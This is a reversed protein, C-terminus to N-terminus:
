LSFLQVRVLPSTVHLLICALIGAAQWTFSPWPSPFNVEASASGKGLRMMLHTM